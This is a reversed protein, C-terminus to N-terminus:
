VLPKAGLGRLHPSQGECGGKGKIDGKWNLRVKRVVLQILWLFLRFSNAKGGAGRKPPTPTRGWLGKKRLM